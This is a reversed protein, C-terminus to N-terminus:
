NLRIAWKNSLYSEVEKRDATSLAREFIIIEGINGEYYNQKVPPGFRLNQYGITMNGLMKNPLSAGSTNAVRGNIYEYIVSSADDVVSLVYNTASKLKITSGNIGQYPATGAVQYALSGTASTHYAFTQNAATWAADSAIIEYIVGTTFVRPSTIVAFITLYKGTATNVLDLGTNTGNFYLCPLKNICEQKYTPGAAAGSLTARNTSSTQSNIDYWNTIVLNDKLEVDVFSKDSVTEMWLILGKISNVPSKQTLEKANTLRASALLARGTIVGSILIGIVLVVISTEVLSFANKRANKKIQKKHM